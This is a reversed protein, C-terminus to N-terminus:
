HRKRDYFCPQITGHLILAPPTMLPKAHGNTTAHILMGCRHGIDEAPVGIVQSYDFKDHMSRADPKLLIMEHNKGTSSSDRDMVM